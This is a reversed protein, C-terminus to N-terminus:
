EFVKIWTKVSQIALFAGCASMGAGVAICAPPGVVTWTTAAACSVGVAVGGGALALGALTEEIASWVLISRRTRPSLGAETPRVAGRGSPDTLVTSRNNAYAYAAVHPDTLTPALPDLTLFRGDTPNYQRARLHYLGTPDLYQGTYRIPNDPAGPDNQTQTRATGYPGYSYTWQPVGTASTLNVISGIGDRLYYFASGGSVMSVLQNGHLYTRTPNGAGDRELALQPLEFNADWLYSTTSAGSSAQLRTGDGDYGYGTTVGADSTSALRNALDWTFTRTGAQTQNGNQDYAYSVSGGLGARATLQDGANHSYATTGAPRAETLWNGVPDYTYRVFDTCGAAFCAETLRDLVDYAYATAGETTTTQTPNGAADYAYSAYSLTQGAKANRVETLRGARDYSRTEVYGNSAPLTTQTLNGAADYGYSTTAGGRTVSALRGDDDYVYTSAASGPYTRQTVNGAPDYSYSFTDAARAVSTLRDLADYGYSTTGDGVAPTNIAGNRSGRM